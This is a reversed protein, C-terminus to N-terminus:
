KIKLDVKKGKFKKRAAAKAKRDADIKDEADVKLIGIKSGLSDTVVFNFSIMRVPVPAEEKMKELFVLLKSRDEAIDVPIFTVDEKRDKEQLQITALDQIMMKIDDECIDDFKLISKIRVGIRILPKKNRENVICGSLNDM